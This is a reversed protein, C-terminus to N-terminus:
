APNAPPEGAPPSSKDPFLLSGLLMAAFALGTTALGVQAGTLRQVWEGTDGAGDRTQLGVLQQVPGLGFIATGGCLLAAVAGTSSARKWYLGCALVAIAGTFYVAGSVAMYDWIDDKGEYILGWYLV